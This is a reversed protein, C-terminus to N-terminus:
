NEKWQIYGDITIGMGHFFDATKKFHTGDVLSPIIKAKAHKYRSWQISQTTAFEPQKETGRSYLQPSIIDIDASRVWKDIFSGANNSVLPASHSTTVIVKLGADKCAKFAALMAPLLKYEVSTHEVDFCVGDFGFLKIVKTSNAVAELGQWSLHGNVNAGGLTIYKDGQLSSSLPGAQLAQDLDGWGSFAIGFDAGKPGKSGATWSLTYYGVLKAGPARTSADVKLKHFGAPAQPQEQNPQEQQTPRSPLAEPDVKMEPNFNPTYASVLVSGLSLWALAM